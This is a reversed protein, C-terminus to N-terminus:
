PETSEGGDGGRGGGGGGAGGGKVGGRLLLKSVEESRPRPQRLPVVAIGVLRGIILVRRIVAASIAAKRAGDQAGRNDQSDEQMERARAPGRPGRRYRPLTAATSSRNASRRKRM